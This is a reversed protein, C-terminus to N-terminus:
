EMSELTSIMEYDGASFIEIEEFSKPAPTVASIYKYDPKLIQRKRLFKRSGIPLGPHNVNRSDIVVPEKDYLYYRGSYSQQFRSNLIEYLTDSTFFNYSKSTDFFAV